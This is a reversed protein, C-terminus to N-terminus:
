MEALSERFITRTSELRDSIADAEERATQTLQESDIPAGDLYQQVDIASRLAAGNSLILSTTAEAATAASTPAILQLTLNADMLRRGAVTAEDGFRDLAEIRDAGPDLGALEGLDLLLDYEADVALLYERMASQVDERDRQDAAAEVQVEATRLTMQGGVFAGLMAGGAGLAAALIAVSAQPFRSEM